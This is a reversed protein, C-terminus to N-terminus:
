PLVIEWEISSINKIGVDGTVIKVRNDDDLYLSKKNNAMNEADEVVIINYTEGTTGVRKLAFKMAADPAVFALTGAITSPLNPNGTIPKRQESNGMFRATAPNYLVFPTSYGQGQLVTPGPNFAAVWLTADRKLEQEAPTGTSLEQPTQGQITYDIYSNDGASKLTSALQRSLKNRIQLVYPM